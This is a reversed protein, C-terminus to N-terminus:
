GIIVERAGGCSLLESYCTLAACITTSTSVVPDFNASLVEGRKARGAIGHRRKFRWLWGASCKFDQIGLHTALRQAAHQIDIGRISVDEARKQTYWNYVTDDLNDHQLKRARYINKGMKGSEVTKMVKRTREKNKLIDHLTTKKLDYQAMLQVRSIGSEHAEIVRLKDVVSLIKYKRKGSSTSPMAKNNSAM